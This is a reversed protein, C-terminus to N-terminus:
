SQVWIFEEPEYFEAGTGDHGVSLRVDGDRLFNVDDIVIDFTPNNFCLIMGPRAQKAKIRIIDDRM